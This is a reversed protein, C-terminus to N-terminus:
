QCLRELMPKTRTDSPRPANGDVLNGDAGYILFRPIGNVNLAKGLSNDSNIFQNGHLDLQEAKRKWADVNTDISISVFAINKGEFDKELQKLHPVERICPVCWSAWLDVYVVKGKFQTFSAEKGDRDFLKVAAPFPTGKITSRKAEFDAVYKGDLSYKATLSRLEELGEDFHNQYDFSSLWRSLLSSQARRVLATDKVTSSLSELRETLSNGSIAAIAINHVDGFLVSMPNDVVPLLRLAEDHPNFGLDAPAHGTAFKLSGIASFTQTAAWMRLYKTVDASPKVAAVISDALREYGKVLHGIQGAALNRGEMWLQKSLSAYDDNFVQLAKNDADPKVITTGLTDVHLVLPKAGSKLYLPMSNQRQHYVSVLSYFGYLSPAVWTAAYKGGGYALTDNRGQAAGPALCYIRMGAPVDGKLKGSISVQQAKTCPAILLALLLLVFGRKCNNNLTIM